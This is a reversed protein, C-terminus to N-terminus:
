VVGLEKETRDRVYLVFKRLFSDFQGESLEFINSMVYEVIDNAIDYEVTAFEKLREHAICTIKCMYTGILFIEEMGRMAEKNNM